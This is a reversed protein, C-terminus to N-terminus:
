TTTRQTRKARIFSNLQKMLSETDDLLKACSSEAVLKRAGARRLWFKAEQGSGRAMFLFNVVDKPHHRGYGEAINAGISDVSKVLQVGITARAFPKWLLVENWIQDALMEAARFIRLEEVQDFRM